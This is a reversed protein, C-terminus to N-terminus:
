GFVKNEQGHFLFIQSACSFTDKVVVDESQHGDEAMGFKERERRRKKQRRILRVLLFMDNTTEIEEIVHPIRLSPESSYPVPM